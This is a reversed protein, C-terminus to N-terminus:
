NIRIRELYQVMAKEIRDSSNTSVVFDVIKQKESQSHAMENYWNCELTNGFYKEWEVFENERIIRHEITNFTNDIKICLYITKTHIPTFPVIFESWAHGGRAVIKGKFKMLDLVCVFAMERESCWGFTSFTDCQEIYYKQISDFMDCIFLAPTRDIDAYTDFNSFDKPPKVDKLLRRSQTFYITYRPNPTVHHWFYPINIIDGKSGNTSSNCTFLDHLIKLTFYYNVNVSDNPKIQYLTCFKLYNVSDISKYEQIHNSVFKILFVPISAPKYKNQIISKNCNSNKSNFKPNFDCSEFLFLVTILGFFVFYKQNNIQLM